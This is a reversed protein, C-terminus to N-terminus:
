TLVAAVVSFYKKMVRSVHGPGIYQSLNLCHPPRGSCRSHTQGATSRLRYPSRITLQPEGSDTILPRVSSERDVNGNGNVEGRECGAATRTGNAGSERQAVTPFYYRRDQRCRTAVVIVCIIVVVSVYYILTIFCIWPKHAYRHCRSVTRCGHIDV